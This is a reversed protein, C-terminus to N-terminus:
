HDDDEHQALKRYHVSTTLAIPMGDKLGHFLQRALIPYPLAAYLLQICSPAGVAMITKLTFQRHSLGQSLAIQLILFNHPWSPGCHLTDEALLRRLM